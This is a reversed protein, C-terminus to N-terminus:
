VQFVELTGVQEGDDFVFGVSQRARTIAVYIKEKSGGAVSPDGSRLFKKFPGHPYILVRDFTLGKAEGFNLPSGVVDKTRVDYRLTQPQYRRVYEFTQSRHVAFIGDHGTETNNYSTTKPFDPFLSDALACIEPRCRYSWNEYKVDCLRNSQWYEVLNVVNGKAYKKNKPSDNTRFTAQRHDGILVVRISSRFLLEVLDLDYGALDQMEDIVVTDYIRELRSIVKGGSKQNVRLVFKAIKDRYIAGHPTFYHRRVNKESVGMRSQGQNFYLETIRPEYLEDQYPRVFHWLLFSFWTWTEVDASDTNALAGRVRGIEEWGKQTFTAIACKGFDGALARTVVGTTKGSGAAALIVENM